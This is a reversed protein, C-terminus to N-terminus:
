PRRMVIGTEVACGDPKFFGPFKFTIRFGASLYIRQAAKWQESVVLVARQVHPFGVAVRSLLENFLYRGFGRHRVEPALAMSSIYIEEGAPRHREQPLHNLEFDKPLLVEKYEWIESCIYGCPVASGEQCLLLFGDPFARIRWAFVDRREIVGPLFSAHEIQMIDDLDLLEAQRFYISHM